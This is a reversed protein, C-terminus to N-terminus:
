DLRFSRWFGQSRGPQICSAQLGQLPPISYPSHAGLQTHGPFKSLRCQRDHHATQPLLPSCHAMALASPEM